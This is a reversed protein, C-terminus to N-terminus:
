GEYHEDYKILRKWTPEKNEASGTPKKYNMIWRVLYAGLFPFLWVVISQFIKQKKTYIGNKLLQLQVLVSYLIYAICIIIEIILIM